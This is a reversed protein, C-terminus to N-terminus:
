MRKFNLQVHFCTEEFRWYLRARSTTAMFVVVQINIATDTGSLHSTQIMGNPISSLNRTKATLILIWTCHNNAYILPPWFTAPTLRQNPLRLNGTLFYYKPLKCACFASQSPRKFPNQLSLAGSCTFNVCQLRIFLFLFSDLLATPIASRQSRPPRLNLDRHLCSTKEEGSVTWITGPAWGAKEVISVTDGGEGGGTHLPRSTINVV